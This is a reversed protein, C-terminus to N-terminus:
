RGGRKIWRLLDLVDAAVTEDGDGEWSPVGSRGVTVRALMYVHEYTRVDPETVLVGWRPPMPGAVPVPRPRRVTTPQASM